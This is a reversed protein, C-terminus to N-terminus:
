RTVHLLTHSPSGAGRLTLVYTGAPLSSVSFRAQGGFADVPVSSITRGTLDRVDIVATAMPDIALKVTVADSAPNPSVSRFTANATASVGQHVTTPAKFLPLATTSFDQYLVESALSNPEAFWQLLAAAYVDRFDNQMILDGREDLNVLDPDAGFVAGNVKTGFVFLPAATGHDTGISGNEAVRRGFESFTMGAIRDAQGQNKMDTMFAEVAGSLEALLGAHTGLTPNSANVQNAHTDFSGSSLSVLYVKTTLGGSILQAVVRLAAALDTGPYQVTSAPAKDAANKVIGAYVDASKAVNRMFDVELAAQTNGYDAAPVEEIAGGANVLRYFEDPNRFTIGMAGAPGNLGLSLSTGIQVALPQEPLVNPYGPALLNMYRGVWGTTGFVDSDTATLWIDTGRFHSRDPNPYTVGQVVALEGNNYLKSLGSLSPHWGLTDTLKLTKGKQIGINPRNNYYLNNEVPIVTNLGDNGGLLQILVLVRDTNGFLQGLRGDGGALARVAFRDIFMPLATTALGTAGVSRIFRRRNM